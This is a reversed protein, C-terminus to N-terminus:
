RPTGGPSLRPTCGFLGLRGLVRELPCWDTFSSQVLNIGVFATFLFWAPSVFWGLALSALVFAGAIRRILLGDCM